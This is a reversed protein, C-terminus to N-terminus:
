QALAMVVERAAARASAPNQGTVLRGDRVVNESWDSAPIHHAGQATLRESLVFPIINIMGGAIEESKTFAAVRKGDVLFSGDSLTLGILAAPGHCVAAVVGGSEYIARALSALETNDPFDWMTSHGGVFFIAHYGAPDIDSPKPTHALKQAAEAFFVAQDPDSLDVEDRPPQGGATSAVDIGFGAARFVVWPHSAEAANFGNSVGSDGLTDVSTLMM